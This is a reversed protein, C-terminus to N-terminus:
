ETRGARTRRGKASVQEIRSLVRGQIAPWDVGTLEAGIGFGAAHRVEEAVDATHVFMKSPICGRNLCTGGSAGSEILAVPSRGPDEPLWSRAHAV